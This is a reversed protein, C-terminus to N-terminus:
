PMFHINHLPPHFFSFLIPISQLHFYSRIPTSTTEILAVVRHSEHSVNGGVKSIVLVLHM